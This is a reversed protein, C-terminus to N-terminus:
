RCNTLSYVYLFRGNRFFRSDCAVIKNETLSSLEDAVSEEMPVIQSGYRKEEDPDLETYGIYMLPGQSDELMRAVNVYLTAKPLAQAGVSVALSAVFALAPIVLRVISM